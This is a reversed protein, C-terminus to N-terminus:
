IKTFIGISNYYAEDASVSSWVLSWYSPCIEAEFAELNKARIKRYYVPCDGRVKRMGVKSDVLMYIPLHDSIPELSVEPCTLNRPM